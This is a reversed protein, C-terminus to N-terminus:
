FLIIEEIEAKDNIKIEWIGNIQPECLLVGDKTDRLYYVLGDDGKKSLDDYVKLADKGKWRKVQLKLVEKKM